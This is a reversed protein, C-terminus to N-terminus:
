LSRFKEVLDRPDDPLPDIKHVGHKTKVIMMNPLVNVLSEDNKLLPNKDVLSGKITLLLGYIVREKDYKTFSYFFQILNIEL